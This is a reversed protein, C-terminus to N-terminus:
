TKIGLWEKEDLAAVRPIRCALMYQEADDTSKELTKTTKQMTPADPPLTKNQTRTPYVPLFPPPHRNPMGGWLMM